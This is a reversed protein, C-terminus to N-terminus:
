RAPLGLRGIAVVCITVPPCFVAAGVWEAVGVFLAVGVRERDAVLEDAGGEVGAVDVIGGVGGVGVGEGVGQVETKSLVQGGAV